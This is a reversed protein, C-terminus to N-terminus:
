RSTIVQQIARELEQPVDTGIRFKKGTRLKIEVAYFGSVRFLMGHPTLRIGWGYYWPNKVVQCSEIENLKFRKRIPGPGFRVELEEEWIVVTLSSFLVLAVAIIVLVAIAIWNIGANALVIAILVMVAAMVAIILYGVQTHKYREIM